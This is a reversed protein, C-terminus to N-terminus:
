LINERRKCEIELFEPPKWILRRKKIGNLTKSKWQSWYLRVRLKNCRSELHRSIQYKKPNKQNFHNDIISKIRRDKVNSVSPDNIFAYSDSYESSRNLSNFINVIGDLLYKLIVLVIWIIM